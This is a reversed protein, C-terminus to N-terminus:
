WPKQRIWINLGYKISRIPPKGAHLTKDNVEGDEVNLNRWLVANGCRPQICLNDLLPFCTQGGTEEEALDNLYVFFTYMRQGSLELSKVAGLEAADFYDYHPKYQQGPEYRVVQLSEIHSTPILTFPVTRQKIKKILPSKFDLMTTTSTRANDEVQTEDDGVVTSRHFQLRHADELLSACEAPSLFNEIHLIGPHDHLIKTKMPYQVSEPHIWAPSPTQAQKNSKSLAFLLLIVLIVAIIVLFVM